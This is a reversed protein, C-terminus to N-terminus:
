AGLHCDPGLVLGTIWKMQRDAMKSFHFHHFESPNVVYGTIWFFWKCHFFFIEILPNNLITFVYKEVLLARHHSIFAILEARSFLFNEKETYIQTWKLLATIGRCNIFGYKSHESFIWLYVNCFYAQRYRISNLIKYNM